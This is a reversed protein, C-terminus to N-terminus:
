FDWDEVFNDYDDDDDDEEVVFGLAVGRPNRDDNDSAESLLSGLSVNTASKKLVRQSHWFDTAIFADGSENRPAAASSSESSSYCGGSDDDYDEPIIDLTRTYRLSSRQHNRKASARRSPASSSRIPFVSSSRRATPQKQAVVTAAAAAAAAAVMMKSTLSSSSSEASRPITAAQKFNCNNTDLSGDYCILCSSCHLPSPTSHIIM